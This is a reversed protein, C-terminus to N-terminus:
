QPRAVIRLDPGIRTVEDLRLRPAKDISPAGPGALAALGGGILVPAIYGIVRDILGAALFSAALTPGGELLVSYVRREYLAQLLAHLDLGGKARSLRVIEAHGELHSTDADGAVAILTRAADDLVRATASTRAESDVVVRLPQHGAEVHRVALHPDDTRQTGSGVMVADSEARLRHADARSAASTIWRSSGDVAAVRGDLSCAYKWTVFPRALRTATLWVENVQAAEAELVGAEVAVGAARLTQAGGAAIPNPDAVAYVVRAVGAELLAKTCPPTRGHHNCPELTVVATGGRAREGAEHLANVEAHPTGGCAFSGEGAARGAQDLIVCGVLADARVTPISRAALAIARRMAEIEGQTAM